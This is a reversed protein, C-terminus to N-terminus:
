KFVSIEMYTLLAFTIAAGFVLLDFILMLIGMLGGGSSKDTDPIPRKAAAGKKSPPGKSIAKPPPGSGTTKKPSFPSQTVKSAGMKGKAPPTVTAGGITEPKKIGVGKAAAKAQPEINPKKIGTPSPPSLSKSAPLAGKATSDAVNAPVKTLPAKGPPGPIPRKIGAKTPPAPAKSPTGPVKSVTKGGPIKSVAFPSKKTVPAKKTPPTGIPAPKKLSM